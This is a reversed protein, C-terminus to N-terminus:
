STRLDRGSQPLASRDALGCGVVAIVSRPDAKGSLALDSSTTDYGCVALYNACEASKFIDACAQLARMLGAVTREAVYRLYAKLKSFGERDPEHGPKLTASIAIRGRRIILQEVRAEKHAPLNDMVVIDGQSLTPVRCKEGM